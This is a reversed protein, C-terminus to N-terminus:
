LFISIKLDNEKSLDIYRANALIIPSLLDYPPVFVIEGVVGNNLQVYSGIYNNVMRKIFSNIIKPDFNGRGSTLFMEFADFPTSRKKYVRDSTMADFVDAVAIIRSYMNVEKMRMQYPYGSGDMREHHCLVAQKIDDSIDMVDDLMHYGYITHKKIIEFEDKELRGKKNLIETPILSKGIDHLLGAQIAQEIEYQSLKMWHSIMMAYLATNLSHTYSYEDVNKLDLLYKVISGCDRISQYISKTIYNITQYNLNRGCALDDFLQKIQTLNDQYTKTFNAKSQGNDDEFQYISLEKVKLAMLKLIIFDNLITERAVLIIGHENIVDDALINGEKCEEIIVKEVTM